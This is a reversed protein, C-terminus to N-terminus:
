VMGYFFPYVYLYIQSRSCRQLKDYKQYRLRMIPFTPKWNQFENPLDFRKKYKQTNRMNVSHVLHIYNSPPCNTYLTVNFNILSNSFYRYSHSLPLNPFVLLSRWCRLFRGWLFLSRQIRSHITTNKLLIYFCHFRRTHCWITIRNHMRSM